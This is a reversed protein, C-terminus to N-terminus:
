LTVPSRVALSCQGSARKRSPSKHPIHTVEKSSLQRHYSRGILIPVALPIARSKWTAPIGSHRQPQSSLWLGHYAMVSRRAQGLGTVV